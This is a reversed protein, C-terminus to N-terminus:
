WSGFRQGQLEQPEGGRVQPRGEERPVGHREGRHHPLLAADPRFYLWLATHGVGCIM